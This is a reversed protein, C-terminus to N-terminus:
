NPRICMSQHAAGKDRLGDQILDHSTNIHTQHPWYTSRKQRTETSCIPQMLVLSGLALIFFIICIAINRHTQSCLHGNQQPVPRTLVFGGVPRCQELGFSDMSKDYRYWIEAGKLNTQACAWVGTCSCPHWWTEKGTVRPRHHM